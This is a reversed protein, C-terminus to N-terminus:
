SSPHESGAFEAGAHEWFVGVAGLQRGSKCILPFALGEINHPVRDFGRIAFRGHAPQQRRLAILMPREDFAILEGADDTPQLLSSWEEALMPDAEEFRRGLLREAPENYFVLSGDAGILFIVTTLYSSLQRMLLLEVPRDAGPSALDLPKGVPVAGPQPPAGPDWFIGVAGLMRDGQGILPFAIGELDRVVGDLGRVVGTSHSPERHETAVFLPLSERKIPSGEASTPQFLTSWEGREISGADEFRRGLMVGAAENFYVLDGRPDVLLMPMTLQSALRRMLIMEIGYQAM